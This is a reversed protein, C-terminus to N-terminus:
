FKNFTQDLRTIKRNLSDACLPCRTSNLLEFVNEYAILEGHNMVINNNSTRNSKRPRNVYETVGM